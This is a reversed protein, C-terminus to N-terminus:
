KELLSSHIPVGREKLMEKKAPFARAYRYWPIKPSAHHLGHYTQDLFLLKSIGSMILFIRTDKFREAPRDRHPLYNVYWAHLAMIIGKPILWLFFVERLFGLYIVSALVTFTVLAVALDKRREERPPNTSEYIARTRKVGKWYRLYLTWFPKELFWCDPDKEPNNTYAHHLLHTRRIQFFPIFSPIAGLVGVLNNLVKNRSVNGHVAEHWVTFSFNLFFVALLTGITIPIIHNIALYAGGMLGGYMLLLLGSTTADIDRNQWFSRVELDKM